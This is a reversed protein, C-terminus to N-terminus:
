RHERLLCLIFLYTRAASAAAAAKGTTTASAAQPPDEPSVLSESMPVNSVEDDARLHPIPLPFGALPSGILIRARAVALPPMSKLEAGLDAAANKLHTLALPPM